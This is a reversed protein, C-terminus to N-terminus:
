HFRYVFCQLSVATPDITRGITANRFSSNELITIACENVALTPDVNKIKKKNPKETQTEPIMFAQEILDFDSLKISKKKKSTSNKGGSKLQSEIFNEVTLQESM